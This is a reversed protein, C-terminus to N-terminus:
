KAKKEAKATLKMTKYNLYAETKKWKKKGLVWMVVAAIHLVWLIIMVNRATVAVPLDHAKIVTNAGIGNMASSNALAYLNHHCAEKMATVIVPDNEYGPLENNINPLM